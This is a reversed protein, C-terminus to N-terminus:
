SSFEPLKYYQHKNNYIATFINWIKQKLKLGSLEQLYGVVATRVAENNSIDLQNVEAMVTEKIKQKKQSVNKLALKDYIVLANYYGKLNDAIVKSDRQFSVNIVLHDSPWFKTLFGLKLLLVFNQNWNQYFFDFKKDTILYEFIFKRTHRYWWNQWYSYPWFRQTYKPKWWKWIKWYGKIETGFISRTCALCHNIGPCVCGNWDGCM